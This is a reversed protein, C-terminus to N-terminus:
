GMIDKVELGRKSAVTEPTVVSLLAKLTARVVNVPSRSGTCKALIDRVGMVECVARVAGGAIIGTGKSAPLIIVKTAAHRGVVPHQITTDKMVIRHMSRRASDMAKQIAQPVERAKGLGFGVKGKGDGVVVLASFGFIRGGKVVKATRRVAVLKEQLSDAAQSQNEINAKM